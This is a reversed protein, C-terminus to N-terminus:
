AAEGDASNEAARRLHCKRIGAEGERGAGFGIALALAEPEGEPTRCLPLRLTHDGGLPVDVCTLTHRTSKM